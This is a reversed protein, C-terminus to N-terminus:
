LKWKHKLSILAEEPNSFIYSEGVYENWCDDDGKDLDSLTYEVYDRYVHIGVIKARFIRAFNAEYKDEDKDENQYLIAYVKQDIFYKPIICDKM